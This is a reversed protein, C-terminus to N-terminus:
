DQLRFFPLNKDKLKINMEWDFIANGDIEMFISSKTRSGTDILETFPEGKKFPINSNYDIIRKVLGKKDTIAVFGKAFEDM